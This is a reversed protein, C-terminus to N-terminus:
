DRTAKLPVILLFGKMGLSFDFKEFKTISYRPLISNLPRSPNSDHFFHLDFIEHCVGKLCFIFRFKLTLNKKKLNM